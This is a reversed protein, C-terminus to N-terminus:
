DARSEAPTASGAFRRRIPGALSALLIMWGLAAVLVGFMQYFLHNCCYYGGGAARLFERLGYALFASGVAAGVAHQLLGPPADFWRLALFLAAGGLLVLLLEEAHPLAPIQALVM